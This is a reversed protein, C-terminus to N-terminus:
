LRFVTTAPSISEFGQVVLRGCAANASVALRTTENLIPPAVWAFDDAARDRLREMLACRGESDFGRTRGPVPLAIWHNAASVPAPRVAARRELREIVCGQDPRTGSLVFFAPLCIPSDTLMAKAADFTRCTDFVRRLLHAPPLADSKLTRARSIAWDLWCSPTYQRMPPQNIAASFRGPAMATVVGSFGPWTVNYYVGAEGEQRAVVVNRGLGDLPWDLTRLLRSGDGDPDPGVGSTCTWEYSLNLLHAGPRGVTRAVAAIEDLYPNATRELWRRSIRDGLALAIRGYRKESIAMIQALHDPVAVALATPGDHGADILPIAPLGAATKALSDLPM